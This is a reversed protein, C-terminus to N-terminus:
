RDGKLTKIITVGCYVVTGFVVLSTFVHILSIVISIVM